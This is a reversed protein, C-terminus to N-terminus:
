SVSVKIQKPKEKESRPMTVTLIGNEYKATVKENEVRFPLKFGRKFKGLPREQRHYTIKKDDTSAEFKREGQIFISDELVHIGIEEATLGPIEATLVLQDENSWMNVGPFEWKSASSALPAYDGFIENMEQLLRNMNNWPFEQWQGFFKSM